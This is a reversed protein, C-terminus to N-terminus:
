NWNDVSKLKQAVSLEEAQATRAGGNTFHMMAYAHKYAMFNLGVFGVALGAAAILAHRKARKTM